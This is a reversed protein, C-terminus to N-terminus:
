TELIRIEKKRDFVTGRTLVNTKGRDSEQDEEGQIKFLMSEQFSDTSSQLEKNTRTTTVKSSYTKPSSWQNQIM